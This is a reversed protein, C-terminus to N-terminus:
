ASAKVYNDRSKYRRPIQSPTFPLFAGALRCSFSKPEQQAAGGARRRRHDARAADPQQGAAAPRRHRKRERPRALRAAPNAFNPSAGGASQPGPSSVLIPLM